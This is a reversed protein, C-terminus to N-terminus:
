RHYEEFCPAPCLGPHNFCNKCQYHTEKGVGKRCCMRCKKQQNSKAATPPIFQFFQRRVLPLNCSPASPQSRSIISEVINVKFDIFRTKGSNAKNFLISVNLIAKEIFHFAVKVM